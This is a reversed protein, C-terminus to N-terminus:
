VTEFAPGLLAVPALTLSTNGGCIEAIAHVHEPVPPPEHLADPFPSMASVTLRGTPALTVYRALTSMTGPAVTSGSTLMAVTVAGGPTVSGTGAFLLSSWSARAAAGDNMPSRRHSSSSPSPTCSAPSSPRAPTM